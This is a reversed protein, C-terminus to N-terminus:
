APSLPAASAAPLRPAGKAQAKLAARIANLQEDSLKRMLKGIFQELRRKAQRNTIRHYEHIAHRLADPLELTLMLDSRLDLLEVGLKQLAESMAKMETRTPKDPDIQSQAKRERQLELDRESGSAVFVGKVYYGKKM